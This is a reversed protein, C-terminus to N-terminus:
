TRRRAAAACAGSFEFLPRLLQSGKVSEQNVKTRDADPVTLFFDLNARERDLHDLKPLMDIAKHKAGGQGPGPWVDVCVGCGTCDDPFVQLTM